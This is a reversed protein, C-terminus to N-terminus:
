LLSVNRILENDKDKLRETVHFYVERTIESSSHGLRRAISDFPIGRAVLMSTHTHRFIHSTVKKELPNHERLYKNFSFITPYGFLNDGKSLEIADKMVPLLEDQIYVDRVSDLTKPEGVENVVSNYNEVIHIYRNELDINEKRLASLEGFRMGTLVLIKAFLLWRIDKISDLVADLEDKELFKDQLKVKRSRDTFPKIKDIFSIDDLIDNRYAWRLMAKLRVLYENLTQPAKDSDAFSTRVYSASLSELMTKEGLIAMIHNFTYYNRQFTANSVTKKQDIRYLEVLRNLTMNEKTLPKTAESQEHLALLATKRNSATDKEITVSFPKIRRETYDYLREFVRVKGNRKQVWM